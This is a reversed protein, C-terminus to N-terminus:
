YGIGQNLDTRISGGKNGYDMNYVPELEQFSLQMEYAVMSSNDYTMYSGDPTYNVNCSLLACEKIKPLFKHSQRGETLFELKYTNPEKLFLNSGSAQPAMSQKFMRIIQLIEESEKEDRPSLKYTFAFPRLQPGQFILEMNPNIIAGETRALIGKVGTAAGVFYQKVAKQAESDAAIKNSAETAQGALGGIGKELGALALEAAMAQGANMNDEGWKTKNSDSVGGPVPLTVAGVTKRAKLISRGQSDLGGSGRKDFGYGSKNFQKPMFELVTIRIRDQQSQRLTTPYCLDRRYSKRGKAEQRLAKQKGAFEEKAKNEELGETADALNKKLEPDNELEKNVLTLNGKTNNGFHPNNNELLDEQSSTKSANLINEKNNQLWANEKDSDGSVNRWASERHFTGDKDYYGLNRDTVSGGWTAEKVQIRGTEADTLTYYRQGKYGTFQQDRSGLVQDTTSM